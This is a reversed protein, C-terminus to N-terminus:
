KDSGGSGFSFKDLVDIFASAQRPPASDNACHTVSCCRGSHLFSNRSSRGIRRVDTRPDFGDIAVGIQAPRFSNLVRQLHASSTRWPLYTAGGFRYLIKHPSIAPLEKASHRCSASNSRRIYMRYFGPSYASYSKTWQSLRPSIFELSHSICTRNIIGGGSALAPTGRQLCARARDKRACAERV